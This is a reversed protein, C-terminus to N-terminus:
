SAAATSATANSHASLPPAMARIIALPTNADDHRLPLTRTTACTAMTAVAVSPNQLTHYLETCRDVISARSSAPLLINESQQKSVKTLCLQVLPILEQHRSGLKTLATLVVCLLQPAHEKYVGPDKSQILTSVEYTLSDLISHYEMLLLNNCRPDLKSSSFEGICYVVHMYGQERGEAFNRRNDVFELIEPKLDVILGPFKRISTLIQKALSKRVHVKYTDIPYLKSMRDLIAPVISTVCAYDADANVINWFSQLLAAVARSAAVVRANAAYGSLMAHLEELSDITGGIGSEKRLIYNTLASTIFPSSTAIKSRSDLEPVGQSRELAAALCPLDLISHFVEVITAKTTFAPFLFQFEDILSLPNWALIKFLVPFLSGLVGSSILKDVHKICCSLFEFCLIPNYYVEDMFTGIFVHLTSEYDVSVASGHQLFFAITALLTHLRADDDVAIKGLLIKRLPAYVRSVLSPDCICLLDLICIGEMLCLQIHARDISENNEMPNLAAQEMVRLCYEVVNDKFKVSLAGANTPKGDAFIVISSIWGHLISFTAMNLLQDSSYFKALNLVTFFDRSRSGDIEMVSVNGRAPSQLVGRTNPNYATTSTTRLFEVISTNISQVLTQDIFSPHFLSIQAAFLVAALRIDTEMSASSIWGLITVVHKKFIPSDLGQASVLSIMAPIQKRDVPPDFSVLKINRCPSVAHLLAVCQARVLSASEQPEVVINYMADLLKQPVTFVRRAALLYLALTNGATTAPDSSIAEYTQTFVVSMDGDSLMRADHIIDTVDM